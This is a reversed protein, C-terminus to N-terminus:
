DHAPISDSRSPVPLERGRRGRFALFAVAVLACASGGAGVPLTWPDYEFRVRHSGAPLLVGRFLHNAALIEHRVGEVSAIWGPYFSDALVLMGPATLAAEVEVVTEEDVLIRAPAGYPKPGEAPGVGEAYSWALPDFDPDSMAAMLVLPEPAERVDHVVFARPVAHPNSLLVFDPDGVPEAQWAREEVTRGLEGRQVGQQSAVIWHVAAVDLLHGRASLAGPYTPATLHKLRGSYPRGGRAPTLQGEMLYTFYNAQRKLNLPEYDGVSRMEFYTALKPPLRSQIGASRIWAREGSERIRTYVDREQSYTDMSGEAFYLSEQNPTASFIELALLAVPLAALWHRAPSAAAVFREGLLRVAGHVGAAAVLALFFDVLFLSRRPFRFWALAPLQAIWDFFPTVPGMAFLIVVAATSSCAIALVRHSKWFSGAALCALTVWGFSLTLIPFPAHLTKVFAEGVGPGFWGFPFQQWRSLSGPSRTGEAALEWGPLLQVAALCGGLAIALAFLGACRLWVAAGKREAVLLGALLAGWGYVLYVSVQPYGALLSMGTATALLATSRLGSGRVVGLVAIAGLPLWAAAELMNPFFVMGPYRGRIAVVGAAVVIASVGFGLRRALVSMTVAVFGLHLLGSLGFALKVPLVLYLVHGPYFFGAQLSAIRPIGCLQYPNWLPLKGELLTGYLTEYIPLYYLFVDSTLLGVETGPLWIRYVWFLAVTALLGIGLIWQSPGRSM